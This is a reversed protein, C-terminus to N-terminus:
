YAVLWWQQHIRKSLGVSRLAWTSSVSVVWPIWASSLLSARTFIGLHSKITRWFCSPAMPWCYLARWKGWKLRWSQQINMTEGHSIPSDQQTGLKREEDLHCWKTSSGSSRWQVTCHSSRALPPPMRFGEVRFDRFSTLHMYYWLVIYDVFMSSIFISYVCQIIM